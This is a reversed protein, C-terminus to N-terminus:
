RRSPGAGPRSWPPDGKEKPDGLSKHDDLPFTAPGSKDGPDEKAGPNSDRIRIQLEPNLFGLQAQKAGPVVFTFKETKYAALAKKYTQFSLKARRQYLETVAYSVLVGDVPM